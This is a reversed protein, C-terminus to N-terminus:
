HVALAAALKGLGGDRPLQQGCVCSPEQALQNLSHGVSQGASQTDEVLPVRDLFYAHDETKARLWKAVFALQGVPTGLVVVGREDEPEHGVLTRALPRSALLNIERATGSRRKALTSMSGLM